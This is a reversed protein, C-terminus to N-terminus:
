PSTAITDTATTSYSVAALYLGHAPATVGADSRPRGALLEIFAEIPRRGSSVELMTGILIRNMHRLFSDAEIWFQLEDGYSEWHADLVTRRFYRYSSGSPTFATFDHQGRLAVACAELAPFDIGRPWWFMRQQSFAGPTRRALIRYCYTRSLAAHRADFGDPAQDCALAAIDPPLLANLGRLRAPEGVYSAVQGWAHVGRDTRGAVTLSIERRLLTGLAAEIEGQM